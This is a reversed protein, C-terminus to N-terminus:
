VFLNTVDDVTFQLCNACVREMRKTQLSAVSDEGSGGGALM